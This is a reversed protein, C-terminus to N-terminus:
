SRPKRIINTPLNSCWWCHGDPNNHRQLHKIYYTV